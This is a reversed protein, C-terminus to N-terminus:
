ANSQLLSAISKEITQEGTTTLLQDVSGQFHIHGDLLFIVDDALKDVLDMIHTTLLVKKGAKSEGKIFEKFRLLSVPDLGTSPEDLIILPTDFMLALVINIKQKNGGSLNGMKKDLEQELNLLEILESERSEGKRLDKVLKILERGTLNEPFSAIQPLHSIDSRYDDRGNISQNRIKIEGSQPIVLGLISKIFTTKGSGNPGLIATIGQDSINLDIGNLVVNKKFSKHLNTVKIM